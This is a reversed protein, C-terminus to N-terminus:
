RKDKYERDVFMAYGDGSMYDKDATGARELAQRNMSRIEDITASRSIVYEGM